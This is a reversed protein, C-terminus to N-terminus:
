SARGPGAEVDIPGEPQAVQIPPETAAPEKGLYLEVSDAALGQWSEDGTLVLPALGDATLWSGGVFYCLDVAGDVASRFEYWGEREPASNAPIWGSRPGWLDTPPAPVEIIRENVTNPSGDVRHGGDARFVGTSPGNAGPQLTVKGRAVSAVFAISRTAFGGVEAEHIVTEGIKFPM